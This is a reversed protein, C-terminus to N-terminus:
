GPTKRIDRLPLQGLIENATEQGVHQALTVIAHRMAARFPTESGLAARAIGALWEVFSPHSLAQEELIKAVAAVDVPVSM